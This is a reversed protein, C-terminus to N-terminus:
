ANNTELKYDGTVLNSSELKNSLGNIMKGIEAAAMSLQVFINDDVYGLKQSITNQTELEALSGKAITLFRIFDRDSNRESGEAINSGVSVASRRMQSTLGYIESKPFSETMAYVLVALDVAKQWVKLEKYNRAM